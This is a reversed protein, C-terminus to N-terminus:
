AKRCTGAYDFAGALFDQDVGIRWTGTTLEQALAIYNGADGGGRTPHCNFLRLVVYRQLAVLLPVLFGSVEIM